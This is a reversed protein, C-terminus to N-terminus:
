RRRAGALRERPPLPRGLLGRIEQAIEPVRWLVLAGYVVAGTLVCIALTALHSAGSNELGIRVLLVVACM